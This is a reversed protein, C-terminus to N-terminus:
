GGDRDRHGSLRRAAPGYRRRSERADPPAPDCCACGDCSTAHRIINLASGRRGISQPDDATQYAPRTLSPTPDHSGLIKLTSRQRRLAALHEGGIALDAPVQRRHVPRGRRQALRRLPRLAQLRGHADQEGRTERHPHRPTRLQREEAVGRIPAVRQTPLIRPGQAARRALHPRLDPPVDARPDLGHQGRAFRGPVLPQQQKQLPRPKGLLRVVGEGVTRQAIVVALHDAHQAHHALVGYPDDALSPHRRQPIQARVRAHHARLLLHQPVGAPLQLAIGAIQRERQRIQVLFVTARPQCGRGPDATRVRGRRPAQRGFIRGPHPRGLRQGPALGRHHVQGGGLEGPQRGSAPLQRRHLRERHRQQLLARPRVPEQHGPEVPVPGQVAAVPAEDLQGRPM